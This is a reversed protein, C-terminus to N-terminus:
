APRHAASIAELLDADAPLDAAFGDADGAVTVISLGAALAAAFEDAEGIILERRTM